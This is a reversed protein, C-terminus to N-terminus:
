QHGGGNICASSISFSDLFRKTRSLSVSPWFTARAIFAVRSSSRITAGPVRRKQRVTLWILRTRAQRGRRVSAVAMRRGCDGRRVAKAAVRVVVVRVVVRAM